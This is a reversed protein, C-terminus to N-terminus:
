EDTETSTEIAKVSLTNLEIELQEISPLNSQLAEPLKDHLRYTAVGIPKQM